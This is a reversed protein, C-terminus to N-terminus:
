LVINSVNASVAICAVMPLFALGSVVPSYGLSVQMYYTLFLFIGFMGMGTIM